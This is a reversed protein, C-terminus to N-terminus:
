FVSLSSGSIISRRGPRGWQRGRGHLWPRARAEARATCVSLSMRGCVCTHAGVCKYLQRDEFVCACVCQMDSCQMYSYLQVSPACNYKCTLRSDFLKDLNYNPFFYVLLPGRSGAAGPVQQLAVPRSTSGDRKRWCLRQLAQSRFRDTWCVSNGCEQERTSSM